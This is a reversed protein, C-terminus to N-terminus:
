AVIARVMWAGPCCLRAPVEAQVEAEAVNLIQEGPTADYDAVLRDPLPGRPHRSGAAVLAGIANSTM